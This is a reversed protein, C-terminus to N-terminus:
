TPSITACFYARGMVRRTAAVLNTRLRTRDVFVGRMVAYTMRAQADKAGRWHLPWAGIILGTDIYARLSSQRSLIPTM